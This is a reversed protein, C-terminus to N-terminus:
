PVSSPSRAMVGETTIKVVDYPKSDLELEGGASFCLPLHAKGAEGM